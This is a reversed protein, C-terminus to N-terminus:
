RQGVLWYDTADKGVGVLVPHSNNYIYWTDRRIVSYYRISTNYARMEQQQLLVFLAM